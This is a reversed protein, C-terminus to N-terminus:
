GGPHGNLAAQFGPPAVEVKGQKAKHERIADKASELLGYCLVKDDIPGAVLVKGDETLGIRIEHVIRPM